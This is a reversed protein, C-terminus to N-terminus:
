ASPCYANPSVLYPKGEQNVCSGSFLGFVGRYPERLRSSAVTSALETSIGATEATSSPEPFWVESTRSGLVPQKRFHGRPTSQSTVHEVAAGLM